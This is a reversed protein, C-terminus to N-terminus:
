NVICVTKSCIFHMEKMELWSLYTCCCAKPIFFDGIQLSYPLSAYIGFYSLQSKYVSFFFRSRIWAHLYSLKDLIYVVTLLATKGITCRWIWLIKWLKEMPFVQMAYNCVSLSDDNFIEGDILLTLLMQKLIWVWTKYWLWLM